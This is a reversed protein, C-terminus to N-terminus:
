NTEVSHFSSAFLGYRSSLDQQRFNRNDRLWPYLSNVRKDGYSGMSLKITEAGGKTKSWDLTTKNCIDPFENRQIINHFLKSQTWITAKHIAHLIRQTKTELDNVKKWRQKHQRNPSAYSTLTSQLIIKKKDTWYHSDLDVKFRSM